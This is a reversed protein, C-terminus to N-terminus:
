EVLVFAYGSALAFTSLFDASCSCSSPVFASGHRLMLFTGITSRCGSSSFTRVISLNHRLVLFAGFSRASPFRFVIQSFVSLVVVSDPVASWLPDRAVFALRLVLVLTVAFVHVSVVLRLLHVGAFHSLLSLLVRHILHLVILLHLAVLLHTASLHASAFMGLHLASSITLRAALLLLLPLFLVLV